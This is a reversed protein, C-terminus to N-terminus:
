PESAPWPLYEHSGVTVLVLVKAASARAHAGHPTGHPKARYDQQKSEHLTIARLATLCSHEQVRAKMFARLAGIM